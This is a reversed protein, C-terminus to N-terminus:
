RARNGGQELGPPLRLIALARGDEVRVQVLDGARLPAGAPVIRFLRQPSTYRVTVSSEPTGVVLAGSEVSQVLGSRQVEGRIAPPGGFGTFGGPSRAADQPPEAFTEPAAITLREVDPASAANGARVGLLAGGAGALLVAVAIAVTELRARLRM